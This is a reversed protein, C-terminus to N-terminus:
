LRALASKLRATLLLELDAFDVHGFLPSGFAAGDLLPKPRFFRYLCRFNACFYGM